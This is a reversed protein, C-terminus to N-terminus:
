SRTRVPRWGTLGALGFLGGLAGWGASGTKWDGGVVLLLLLAVFLGALNTLLTVAVVHAKRTALGGLFDAVGFTAASALALLAPM